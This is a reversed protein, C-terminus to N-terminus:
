TMLTGTYNCLLCIIMNINQKSISVRFVETLNWIISNITVNNRIISINLLRESFYWNNFILLFVVFTNHIKITMM